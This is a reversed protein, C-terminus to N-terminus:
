NIADKAPHGNITRGASDPLFVLSDQERDIKKGARDM